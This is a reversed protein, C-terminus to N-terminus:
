EIIVEEDAGIQRLYERKTIFFRSAITLIVEKDVANDIYDSIENTTFFNVRYIRCYERINKLVIDLRPFVNRCEMCHCGDKKEVVVSNCAICRLGKGDNNIMIDAETLGISDLFDVMEFTYENLRSRFSEYEEDTLQHDRAERELATFYEEFQDQTLYGIDESCHISGSGDNNTFVMRFDLEVDLGLEEIISELIYHKVSAFFIPSYKLKRGNIWADMNELELFGYYNYVDFAVFKHEMMIIGSISIRKIHELYMPPLHHLALTPYENIVETLDDGGSWDKQYDPVYYERAYNIATQNAIFRSFKKNRKM